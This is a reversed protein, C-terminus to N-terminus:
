HVNLPILFSFVSGCLAFSSFLERASYTQAAVSCICGLVLEYVNDGFHCQEKGVLQLLDGVLLLSTCFFSILKIVFFWMFSCHLVRLLYQFETHFEYVQILGCEIPSFTFSWKCFQFLFFGQNISGGNWKMSVTM